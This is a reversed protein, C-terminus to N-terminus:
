TQAITESAATQKNHKSEFKYVPFIVRFISGHAPHSEVEVKGGHSSMIQHVLSLGLGTGSDKSTYFPDFIRELKEPEIGSGQDIIEIAIERQARKKCRILITGGQPMADQANIFLNLFVQRCLGIDAGIPPLDPQIDKQYTYTETSQQNTTYALVQDIMDEVELSELTPVPPRAFMLFDNVVRSLRNVEEIIFESLGEENEVGKFRKNLIQASGRIIGLPNRIEHAVGAVMSGLAALREQRRVQEELRRITSLDHFTVVLGLLDGMEILPVTSIQLPLADGNDLEYKIEHQYISTSKELTFQIMNIFPESQIVNHLTKGNCDSIRLIEMGVRNVHNIRLNNDISMVGTSINSLINQLFNHTQALEHNSVELEITKQQLQELQNQIREAMQNFSSSLIQQEESGAVPVRVDFQGQAMTNAAAALDFIPRAISRAVVVAAFIIVVLIVLFSIVTHYGYAKWLDTVPLYFVLIASTQWNQQLIPIFKAQVPLEMDFIPIDLSAIDVEYFGEQNNLNFLKEIASDNLYKELEIPNPSLVSIYVNPDVDQFEIERTPNKDPTDYKRIFPRKAFVAGAETLEAQNDGLLISQTNCLYIINNEEYNLGAQLWEKRKEYESQTLLSLHLEPEITKNLENKLYNIAKSEWTQRIQQATADPISESGTLFTKLDEHQNIQTRFFRRSLPILYERQIRNQFNNISKEIQQSTEEILHARENHQYVYLLYFPVIMLPIMALLAVGMFSLILRSRLRKLRM